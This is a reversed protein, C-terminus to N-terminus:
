LLFRNAHCGGIIQASQNKLDNTVTLESALMNIADQGYYVTTNNSALNTDVCTQQNSDLSLNYEICDTKSTGTYQLHFELRHSANDITSTVSFDVNLNNSFVDAYAITTGGFVFPIETGGILYRASPLVFKSIVKANRTNTHHEYAVDPFDNYNCTMAHYRRNAFSQAVDTHLFQNYELTGIYGKYFKGTATVLYVNDDGPLRFIGELEDIDRTISFKYLTHGYWDNCYIENNTFQNHATYLQMIWTSSYACDQAYNSGAIDCPLVSHPYVEGDIIKWVLYHSYHDYLAALTLVGLSDSVIGINAIPARSPMQVTTVSDDSLNIINVDINAGSGAIDHRWACIYLKGDYYHMGNMHSARNLFITKKPTVQSDPTIIDEFDFVLVRAEADGSRNYFGVYVEGSVNNYAAGGCSYVETNFEYTALQELILRKYVSMDDYKVFENGDEIDAIQQERARAEAAIAAERNQIEAALGTNLDSVDDSLGEVDDVYQSVLQRLQEMQANPDAWLLWFDTNSIQVGAPVPQKSIYTYANYQVAEIAEYSESANWEIPDHFKVLYRAGKFTTTQIAM